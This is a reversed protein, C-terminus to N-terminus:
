LSKKQSDETKIYSNSRASHQSAKTSVASASPEAALSAQPSPSYGFASSRRKKKKSQHKSEAIQAPFYLIMCGGGLNKCM